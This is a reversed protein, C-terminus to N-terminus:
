GKFCGVAFIPAERLETATNASKMAYRGAAACGTEL